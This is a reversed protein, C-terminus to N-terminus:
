QFYTVVYVFLTVGHAFYVYGEPITALAVTGARPGQGGGRILNKKYVFYIM